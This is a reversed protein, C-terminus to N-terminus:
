QDKALELFKRVAGHDERNYEEVIRNKLDIVYHKERWEMQFVGAKRRGILTEAHYKVVAELAKYALYFRDPSQWYSKSWYFYQTNCSAVLDKAKEYVKKYKDIM